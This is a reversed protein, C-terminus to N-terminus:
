SLGGAPVSSTSLIQIGFPPVARFSLFDAVYPANSRSLVPCQNKLRLLIERRFDLVNKESVELMTKIAVPNGLCTGRFVEGFAGAGVKSVMKVDNPDLTYRALLKEPSCKVTTGGMTTIEIIRGGSVETSDTPNAMVQHVIAAEAMSLKRRWQQKIRTENLRKVGLVLVAFFVVLNVACLSLGFALPHMSETLKTDIALASGCTLLLSYQALHSLLNNAPLLFPEMERQSAM